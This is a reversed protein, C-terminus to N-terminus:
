KTPMNRRTASTRVPIVRSKVNMATPKMYRSGGAAPASNRGTMHLDIFDNLNKVTRTDTFAIQKDKNFIIITPFGSVAYKKPLKRVVALEIQIATIENKRRDIVKEWIPKFSECHPCGIMYYMCIVKDNKELISKLQSPETIEDCVPM